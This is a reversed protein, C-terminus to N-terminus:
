FFCCKWRTIKHLALSFAPSPMLHNVRLFLVELLTRTHLVVLLKPTIVLDISFTQIVSLHYFYNFKKWTTKCSIKEKSCQFEAKVKMCPHKLLVLFTWCTLILQSNQLFHIRWLAAFAVYWLIKSYSQSDKWGSLSLSRYQWGTSGSNIENASVLTNEMARLSWLLYLLFERSVNLCLAAIAFVPLEVVCKVTASSSYQSKLCAANPLSSAFRRPFWWDSHSSLFSLNVKTERCARCCGDPACFSYSWTSAFSFLLWLIGTSASHNCRHVSQYLGCSCWRFNHGELVIIVGSWSVTLQFCSVTKKGMIVVGISGSTVQCYYVIQVSSRQPQQKNQKKKITRREYLVTETSCPHFDQIVMVTSPSRLQTCESKVFPVLVCELARCKSKNPSICDAMHANVTYGYWLILYTSNISKSLVFPPLSRKMEIFLLPTVYAALLSGESGDTQIHITIQWGLIWLLCLTPNQHLIYLTHLHTNETHTQPLCKM